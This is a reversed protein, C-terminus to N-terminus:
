REWGHTSVYECCIYSREILMGLSLIVVTPISMFADLEQVTWGGEPGVALAYKGGKPLKQLVDVCSNGAANENCVVLWRDNPWQALMSSLPQPQLLDPATLRESQESAEISISALRDFRVAKVVTRQTIIPALIKAGLETGKQVIIELGEGKVPAFCLWVDPERAMARRQEKLSGRVVKKDVVDLRCWWEGNVGDFVKIESGQTVRMVKRLYHEQEETFDVTCGEMANLPRPLFMRIDRRDDGGGVGRDREVSCRFPQRRAAGQRAFYPVQSGDPMHRMFFDRRSSLLSPMPAACPQAFAALGDGCLFSRTQVRNIPVCMNM